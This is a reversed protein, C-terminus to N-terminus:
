AGSPSLLFCAFNSKSKFCKKQEAAIDRNEKSPFQMKTWHVCEEM